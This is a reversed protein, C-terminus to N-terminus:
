LLEKTKILEICIDNFEKQNRSEFLKVGEPRKCVNSAIVKSKFYLAERISVADGDTNTPRVMLDISEFLPWIERQGKLIFFHDNLGEDDIRKLQKFLYSKNYEENALAFLFGIKKNKLEIALSICMDLGYLDQENFTALQYANASIVYSHKTLFQNLEKPYTKLIQEREEMPPPLFAHEVFIIEPLQIEEEKYNDLVHVGVVILAKLKKVIQKYKKKQNRSKNVFARPNHDTIIWDFTKFNATFSIINLILKDLTHVHIADFNNFTIKFVLNILRLLQFIGKSSIDYIESNSLLGNLRYVHVSVGGLPPPCAGVILLKKYEKLFNIHARINEAEAM